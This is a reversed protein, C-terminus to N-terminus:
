QLLGARQKAQLIRLVSANIQEESIEGNEVAELVADFADTYDEPMLLMDNGAKVALVAAEAAAYSETIAGMSLSDTIIIGTYGLEGRLKESILVPSLSAPTEEEGTDEVTLHGVMIFDTGAAIAAEFPLLDSQRLEEWTKRIHGLSEHTDEAASGHGPYHKACTLTGTEQLGEIEATVLESVTKPDTGFARDSIINEIESDATDAVPAFDTNIGYDQLYSGLTSGLQRAADAGGDAALEPLLPFTPVSFGSASAIRTVKGGEEDTGIFLPLSSAQQLDQTLTRLQEPDQINDSFIVIGGAPYNQLTERMEETVVYAGSNEESATLAEPCVFFMQGVKERLSMGSLREEPSVSEEAPATEAVQGEGIRPQVSRAAFSPLVSQIETVTGAAPDIGCASFLFLLAAAAAAAMRRAKKMAAGM